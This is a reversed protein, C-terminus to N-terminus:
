GFILLLLAAILQPLYGLALTLANQLSEYLTGNWDVRPTSNAM